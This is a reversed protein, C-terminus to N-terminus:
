CVAFYVFVCVHSAPSGDILLCLPIGGVSSASLSFVVFADGRPGALSSFVGGVAFDVGFTAFFICLGCLAWIECFRDFM